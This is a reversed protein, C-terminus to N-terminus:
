TNLEMVVTAVDVKSPHNLIGAGHCDEYVCVCVCVCVAGNLTLLVSINFM